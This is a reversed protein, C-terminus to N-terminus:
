FIAGEEVEHFFTKAVFIKKQVRQFNIRLQNWSHCVWGVRGGQPCLAMVERTLKMSPNLHHSVLQECCFSYPWMLGPYEGM